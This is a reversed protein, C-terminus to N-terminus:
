STAGISAYTSRTTQAALDHLAAELDKGISMALQREYQRVSIVGFAASAIRSDAGAIYNRLFLTNLCVLAKFMIWFMAWALRRPSVEHGVCEGYYRIAAGFDDLALTGQSFALDLVGDGLSALEWDSMAVIRGDRWIEEGIGNNGKVLSIFPTDTPMNEELWYLAETIVPHPETRGALWLDKWIDFELRLADDPSAPVPIFEDFGYAAWDLRHVEALMEVHNRVAVRRLRAGEATAATLGPLTTGGAVLDRVMHARGEAFDVGEAFWLPEAVPIPSTWLRRYVEWEHRLSTPTGGGSPPDVRLVFGRSEGAVEADVLYTERSLGPFTQRLNRVTVSSGLRASFYDAVSEATLAAESREIDAM